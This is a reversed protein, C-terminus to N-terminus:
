GACWGAGSSSSENASSEAVLEFAPRRNNNRGASPTEWTSASAV